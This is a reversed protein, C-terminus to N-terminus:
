EDYFTLSWDFCPKIIESGGPRKTVKLVLAWLQKGFEKAPKKTLLSVKEEQVAGKIRDYTEGSLRRYSVSAYFTTGYQGLMPARDNRLMHLTKDHVNSGTMTWSDNSYKFLWSFDDFGQIDVNFDLRFSVMFRKAALIQGAWASSAEMYEVIIKFDKAVRRIIAREEPFLRSLVLCKVEMPLHLWDKHIVPSVGVQEVLTQGFEGPMLPTLNMQNMNVTIDTVDTRPYKPDREEASSYAHHNVSLSLLVTLLVFKVM